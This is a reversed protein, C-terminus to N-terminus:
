FRSTKKGELFWYLWHPCDQRIKVKFSNVVQSCSFSLSLYFCGCIWHGLLTWLVFGIPKNLWKQFFFIYSHNKGSLWTPLIGSDSSIRNPFMGTNSNLPTSRKKRGATIAGYVAYFFAAAAAAIGAILLPANFKIDLTSDRPINWGYPGWLVSLPFLLDTRNLCFNTKKM